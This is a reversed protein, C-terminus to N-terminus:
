NMPNQNMQQNGNQMLNNPMAELPTIVSTQEEITANPQKSLGMEKMLQEYMGAISSQQLAMEQHSKKVQPTKMNESSNFNEKAMSTATFHADMAIDKDSMNSNPVSGQNSAQVFTSAPVPPLTVQSQNPDLLQNMAQVHNKMITIQKDLITLIQQNQTMSKYLELRKIVPKHASLHNAMLGVDVTKIM